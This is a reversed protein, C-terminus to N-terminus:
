PRVEPNVLPVSGTTSVTPLVEHPGRTGIASRRSITEPVRDGSSGPCAWNGCAGGAANVPVERADFPSTARRVDLHQSTTLCLGDRSELSCENAIQAHKATGPSTRNLTQRSIELEKCLESVKTDPKGM